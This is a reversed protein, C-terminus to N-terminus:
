GAPPRGFVSPLRQRGKEVLSMPQQQCLLEPNGGQKSTM